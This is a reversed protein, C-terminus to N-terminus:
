AQTCWAASQSKICLGKRGGPYLSSYAQTRLTFSLCIQMRNMFCAAYYGVTHFFIIFWSWSRPFMNGWVLGESKHWILAVRRLKCRMRYQSIHLMCLLFTNFLYVQTAHKCWRTQLKTEFVSGCSWLSWWRNSWCWGLLWHLSSRPM